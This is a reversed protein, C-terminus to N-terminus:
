EDDESDWGSDDTNIIISGFHLVGDDNWCLTPSKFEVERSDHEKGGYAVPVLGIVGADVDYENKQQDHFTGDGHKTSFALIQYGGVEGVPRDIFYNCNELLPIWDEDRIVYCPDGLYYRGAPITVETYIKTKMKM